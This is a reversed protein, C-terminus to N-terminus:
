GDVVGKALHVRIREGTVARASWTEEAPVPTCFNFPARQPQLQKLCIREGRVTWTGSSPARRRGKATYAGDPQLWLLATRGDPYTSVITNGFARSVKEAGLPASDAYGAAGVVGVACLVLVLRQM